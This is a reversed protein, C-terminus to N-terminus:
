GMGWISGPERPLDVSVAKETGDGAIYCFLLIVEQAEAALDIRLSRQQSAFFPALANLYSASLEWYMGSDALAVVLGGRMTRELLAEGELPNGKMRRVTVPISLEDM